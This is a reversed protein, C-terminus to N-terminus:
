FAEDSRDRAACGASPRRPPASTPAPTRGVPAGPVGRAPLRQTSDCVPQGSRFASPHTTWRERDTLIRDVKGRQSRKGASWAIGITGDGSWVRGEFADSKPGIRLRSDAGGGRFWRGAPVRKGSRGQGGAQGGLLAKGSCPALFGRIGGLSATEPSESQFKGAPATSEAANRVTRARSAIAKQEPGIMTGVCPTPHRFRLACANTRFRSSVGGHDPRSRM